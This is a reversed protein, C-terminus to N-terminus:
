HLLGATNKVRLIRQVSQELREKSLTGDKLAAQVGVVAQLYDEPLLIMDAGAEIALVAAEGASYSSTIAGMEMSDTIIVGAFGMRGRLTEQLFYASLSAPLGSKDAEPSTIHGAMIFQAGEDIAQQFPLYANAQADPQAVAAERHTDEAASGHGPFHKPCAFVGQSHLGRQFASVMDSVLAPDSGFSRTGIAKSGTDTLIDAVPAFDIHVGMEKLSAGIKEAVEYAYDASGTKGIEAASPPREYGPLRASSLRSVKGGEEDIGILPRIGGRSSIEAIISKIDELSSIDNAFLIYGGPPPLSDVPTEVLAGDKTELHIFFLQCIMELTTMEQTLADLTDQAGLTVAPPSPAFAQQAPACSCLAFFFSIIFLFFRKM